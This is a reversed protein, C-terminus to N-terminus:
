VAIEGAEAALTCHRFCKCSCPVVGCTCPAAVYSRNESALCAEGAEATLARMEAARACCGPAIQVAPSCQLAEGTDAVGVHGNSLRVLLHAASVARSLGLGVSALLAAGVFLLTHQLCRGVKAEAQAQLAIHKVDQTKM